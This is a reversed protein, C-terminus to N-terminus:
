QFLPVPPVPTQPAGEAWGMLAQSGCLKESAELIKRHAAFRWLANLDPMGFLPSRAPSAAASPPWSSHAPASGPKHAWPLGVGGDHIRSPTNGRAALNGMAEMLSSFAALSRSGTLPAHMGVLLRVM